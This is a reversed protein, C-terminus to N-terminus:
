GDRSALERQMFVVDLWRGHKRAIDTLVGARRFGAREHLRISPLNASDGIVAIMTVRGQAACLEILQALLRGGLGRGCAEPKLYVSDEVSVRYAPRPRFPVAYAYGLVESDEAEAVLWPLGEAAVSALRRGMEEADPPVEEFSGFGHLVNPAYVAALAAADEPRAPRIRAEDM